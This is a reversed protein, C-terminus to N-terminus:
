PEVVFAHVSLITVLTKADTITGDRVMRLVTSFPLEHLEMFEDAERAHAGPVLGTAMYLHILEDTFGPATFIQTVKRLGTCTYGTEERLERHATTEPAEGADRRGAPIEWLWGDAAHRFQRILLVRPDPNSLDDLVPLVAAAGPHRLMEFTGVSGDPLSVTDVDLGLIRGTWIRDTKILPVCNEPPPVGFPAASAAGKPITIAHRMGSSDDVRAM